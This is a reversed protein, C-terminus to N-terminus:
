VVEYKDLCQKRYEEPLADCLAQWKDQFEPQASVIWVAGETCWFQEIKTPMFACARIMDPFSYENVGAIANGLGRFCAQKSLEEEVRHCLGGVLKYDKEHRAVWWAPQEFYCAEKFKGPVATCPFFEDENDLDRINGQDITRFNYEMLVGSTCGGIPGQWDLRKCEELSDILKDHGLEVLVGHGIGHQCGLGKAGYAEICAEDLEHIIDLGNEALAWGFFSHYCGYAYNQDCVVIGPVDEVEFLAEGFVHAKDHQEKIGLKSYKEGFLEYAKKGGLVEIAETWFSLEEEKPIQGSALYQSYNDKNNLTFFLMGLLVGSLLFLYFIKKKVLIM